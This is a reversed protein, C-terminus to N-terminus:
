RAVPPIAPSAGAAGNAPSSTPGLGLSQLERGISDGQGGKEAIDEPRVIQNLAVPQMKLLKDALGQIRDPRTLHAYEARLVNIEDDTKNIHHRLKVIQESELITEYKINYVYIASGILAAIAILHLLRWM